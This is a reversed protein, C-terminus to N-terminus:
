PQGHLHLFRLTASLRSSPVRLSTLTVAYIDPISLSLFSPTGTTGDTNPEGIVTGLSNNSQDFAQLTLPDFSTYWIGYSQIPSAFDITITPDQSDWIVVDGSHAPFAADSYGGFRSASLGTVNPGFTLGTYFGDINQGGGNFFDADPLNEFTILAAHASALSFIFLILVSKFRPYLEFILV